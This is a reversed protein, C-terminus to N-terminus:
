DESPAPGTPDVKEEEEKQWDAIHDLFYEFTFDIDGRRKLASWIWFQVGYARFLDDTNWKHRIAVPAWKNQDSQHVAIDLYEAGDDMLVSWVNRDWKRDSM